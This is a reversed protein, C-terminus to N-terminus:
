AGVGGAGGSSRGGVSQSRMARSARAHLYPRVARVVFFAAALWTLAVTAARAGEGPLNEAFLLPGVGQGALGLLPGAFYGAGILAEFSGGADVAAHGVALTYYLAAYYTLGTGAGFCLLGLVIGTVSSGLFV